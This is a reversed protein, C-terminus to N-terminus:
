PLVSKLEALSSEVKQSIEDLNQAAGGHLTEDLKGFADMLKENASAITANAEPTLGSKEGLAPLSEILHGIEHLEGHADDPSGSKFANLILTGSKAIADIAESLSEPHKGGGHDHDHEEHGGEAVTKANPGPKCGMVFTFMFVVIVLKIVVM